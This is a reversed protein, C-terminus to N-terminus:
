FVRHHFDTVSWDWLCQKLRAELRSVIGNAIDGQSEDKEACRMTPALLCGVAFNERVDRVGHGM